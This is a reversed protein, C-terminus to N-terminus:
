WQLVQLDVQQLFELLLDLCYCSSPFVDLLDVLDTMDDWACFSQVGCSMVDISRVDLLADLLPVTLSHKWFLLLRAWGLCLVHLRVFVSIAPETVNWLLFSVLFMGVLKGRLTLTLSVHVLDIDRDVFVLLAQFHDVCSEM